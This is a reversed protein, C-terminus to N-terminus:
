ATLELQIYQRGSIVVPEAVRKEPHDKNWRSKDRRGLYFQSNPKM